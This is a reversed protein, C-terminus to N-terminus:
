LSITQPQTLPPQLQIDPSPKDGVPHSPRHIVFSSDRDRSLHEDTWSSFFREVPQFGDRQQLM